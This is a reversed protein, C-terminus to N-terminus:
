YAPTVRTSNGKLVNRRTEEQGAPREIERGEVQVQHVRGGSDALGGACHELVQTPDTRKIKVGEGWHM